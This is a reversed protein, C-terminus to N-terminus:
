GALRDLQPLVLLPAALRSAFPTSSSKRLRAPLARRTPPDPWSRSFIGTNAPDEDGAGAFDVRAVCARRAARRPPLRDAALNKPCAAGADDKLHLSGM